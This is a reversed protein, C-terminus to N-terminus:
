VQNDLDIGHHRPVDLRSACSVAVSGDADQDPFPFAYSVITVETWATSRLYFDSPIRSTKM